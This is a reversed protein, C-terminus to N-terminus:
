RLRPNGWGPGVDTGARAWGPALTTQASILGQRRRGAPSAVGLGPLVLGASAAAVTVKLWRGAM